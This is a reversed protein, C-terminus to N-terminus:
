SAGMVRSSRQRLRGARTGLFTALTVGMSHSTNFMAYDVRSRGCAGRLEEQFRQMEQLYRPRLARSDALLAGADELGV